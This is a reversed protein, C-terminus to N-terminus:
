PNASGAAPQTAPVDKVYAGLPSGIRKLDKAVLEAMKTAGPKLFHAKDPAGNSAPFYLPLAKDKGLDNLMEVGRANLDDVLVKKADGEKHVAAAYPALRANDEKGDASWQYFASPTLFIATGGKAQIEDAMQGLTAAYDEPTAHGHATGSDNAGFQILVYDGPKLADMIAKWRGSNKFSLVTAGGQAQNDVKVKDNFFQGLEMGWGEQKTKSADYQSVTSDGALHVTVPPLDGAPPTAPAPAASQAVSVGTLAALVFCPLVLALRNM